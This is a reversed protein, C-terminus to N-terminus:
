PFWSDEPQADHLQPGLIRTSKHMAHYKQFCAKLLITSYAVMAKREIADLREQMAITDSVLKSIEFKLYNM